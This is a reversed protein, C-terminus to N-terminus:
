QLRRLCPTVMKLASVRDQLFSIGRENEQEAIESSTYSSAPRLGGELSDFVSSRNRYDRRQFLCLTCFRSWGASQKLRRRCSKLTLSDYSLVFGPKSCFRPFRLYRCVNGPRTASILGLFPLFGFSVFGKDHISFLAPACTCLPRRCGSLIAYSYMSKVPEFSLCYLHGIRAHRELLPSVFKRVYGVSARFELNQSRVKTLCDRVESVYRRLQRRSWLPQEEKRIDEDQESTKYGAQWYSAEFSLPTACSFSIFFSYIVLPGTGNCGRFKQSQICENIFFNPFPSLEPCFDKLQGTPGAQHVRSSRQLKFWTFSSRTTCRPRLPAKCSTPLVTKTKKQRFPAKCSTPLVTKNKKGLTSSVLCNLFSMFGSWFCIAAGTLFTAM